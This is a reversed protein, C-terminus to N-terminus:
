PKWLEAFPHRDTGIAEQFMQHRVCHLANM